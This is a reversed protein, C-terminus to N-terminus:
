RWSWLQVLGSVFGFATALWLPIVWPWLVRKKRRACAIGYGLSALAVGAALILGVFAGLLIHM